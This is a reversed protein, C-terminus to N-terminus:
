SPYIRILTNYVMGAIEWGLTGAVVTLCLNTDVVIALGTLISSLLLSRNSVIPRTANQRGAEELVDDRSRSPVPIFVEDRLSSLLLRCFATTVFTIPMNHSQAVALFGGLSTALKESIPHAPNLWSCSLDTCRLSSQPFALYLRAFSAGSAAPVALFISGAIAAGYCAKPFMEKFFRATMAIDTSDLPLNQSKAVATLHSATWHLLSHNLVCKREPNIRGM